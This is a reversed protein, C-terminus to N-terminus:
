LSFCDSADHVIVKNCNLCLTKRKEHPKTRIVMTAAAAKAKAAAVGATVVVVVRPSHQQLSNQM